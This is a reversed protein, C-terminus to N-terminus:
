VHARGIKLTKQPWRDKTSPIAGQFYRIIQYIIKWFQGCTVQLHRRAFPEHCTFPFSTPHLFPNSSKQRACHRHSASLLSLVEPFPFTFDEPVARPTLNDQPVCKYNPPAYTQPYDWQLVARTRVQPFRLHFYLWFTQATTVPPKQGSTALTPGDTRLVSLLSLWCQLASSDSNERPGQPLLRPCLQYPYRAM